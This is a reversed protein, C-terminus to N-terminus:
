LTPAAPVPIAPDDMTAVSGKKDAAHMKGAADLFFSRRGAHGYDDPTAAIEFSPDAGQPVPLIRYRFAYGGRHGVALEEGILDAADPSIGEKPAPGLQALSEPLKGFARQYTNV